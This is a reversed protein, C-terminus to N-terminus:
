FASRSQQGGDGPKDIKAAYKLSAGAVIVALLALFLVRARFPHAAFARVLRAVIPRSSLAPMRHMWAAPVEPCVPQTFQRTSRGPLKRLRNARLQCGPWLM